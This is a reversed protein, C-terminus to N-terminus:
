NGKEVPYGASNWGETGDRFYYIKEFGWMVAMASANAAYRNVGGYIVVEQDKEVIKLLEFEDFEGAIVDVYYAGPIHAATWMYFIDVFIVGRDHLAKATPVDITTAGKVELHGSLNTTM